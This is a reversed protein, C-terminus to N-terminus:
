LVTPNTTSFQTFAVQHELDFEGFDSEEDSCSDDSRKSSTQLKLSQRALSEQIDFLLLLQKELRIAQAVYEAEKAKYFTDIKNLQEDLRTFFTRDQEAHGLPEMLQTEYAQVWRHDENWHGRKHVQPEHVLYFNMTLIMM